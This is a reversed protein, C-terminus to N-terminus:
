SDPKCNPESATILYKDKKARHWASHVLRLELDRFRALDRRGVPAAQHPPQGTSVRKGGVELVLGLYPM